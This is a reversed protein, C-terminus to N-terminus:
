GSGKAPKKVRADPKEAQARPPKGTVVMVERLQLLDRHPKVTVEAFGFHDGIEKNTQGEALLRLVLRDRDTM